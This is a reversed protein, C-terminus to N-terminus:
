RWSAIEGLGYLVGAVVFLGFVTAGVLVAVAQHM